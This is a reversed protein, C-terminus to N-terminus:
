YSFHEKWKKRIENKHKIIIKQLYNLQKESFGSYDVLSITPELWFKAEGDPSIVHVHVRSEEKSFFHFRYNGKILVTSEYFYYVM